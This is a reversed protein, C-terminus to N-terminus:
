CLIEGKGGNMNIYSLIELSAALSNSQGGAVLYIPRTLDIEGSQVKEVFIGETGGTLVEIIQDKPLLLTSSYPPLPEKHLPSKLQIIM